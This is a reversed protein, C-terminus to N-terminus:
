VMRPDLLRGDIPKRTTDYYLGKYVQVEAMKSFEFGFFTSFQMSKTKRPGIDQIYPQKSFVLGEVLAKNM